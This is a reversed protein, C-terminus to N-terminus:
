QNQSKIVNGLFKKERFDMKKIMKIWRVQSM